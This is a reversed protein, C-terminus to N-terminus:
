DVKGADLAMSAMNVHAAINNSDIKLVQGYAKAAGAPDAKARLLDGKMLWAKVNDPQGAIVQDILKMTEDPKNGAAALRAQGLVADAFGPVAKLAEAYSAGADDQKNLGLYADGRLVLLAALEEGNMAPAPRMEDIIKQFEGRQVYIQGLANQVKDKERVNSLAKHLEDEAAALNGNNSYIKGLLYRADGNNADQQLANKLQIVASKDDGKAHYGQADALYDQSTKTKSCGTSVAGSLLAMMLLPLFRYSSSRIAPM